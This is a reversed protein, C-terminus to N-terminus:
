EERNVHVSVGDRFAVHQKNHHWVDGYWFGWDRVKPGTSFVTMTYPVGEPLILRHAETAARTVVDGKHRMVVETTGHPPQSQIHEEYGGSVIVSQNDWPHDHFPREPDSQVQIHLMVCAPAHAGLTSSGGVLYWRYLYPSGDPALTLDPFYLRADGIKGLTSLTRVAFRYDEPTLLEDVLRKLVPDHHAM